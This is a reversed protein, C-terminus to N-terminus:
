DNRLGDTMGTKQFLIIIRFNFNPGFPRLPFYNIKVISLKQDHLHRIIQRYDFGKHGLHQNHYETDPKKMVAGMLKTFTYETRYRRGYGLLLRGLQKVFVPCGIEIPVSIVGLANEKMIRRIEAIAKHPSQVHELTELCVVLDFFNDPFTTKHIDEVSLKVNGLADTNIEDLYKQSIDCGYLEECLQSLTPLFIGDACGADLIRGYKRSQIMSLVIRLPQTHVWNRLKSKSLYNSQSYNGQANLVLKM